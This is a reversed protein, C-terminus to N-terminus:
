LFNTKNEESIIEYHIDDDDLLENLSINEPYTNSIIDYSTYILIYIIIGKEFIKIRNLDEMLLVKMIDNNNNLEEKFGDKKSKILYKNKNLMVIKKYPFFYFESPEKVFLEYLENEENYELKSKNRNLRINNIYNIIDIQEETFLIKMKQINKVMFKKKKENSMKHFNSSLEFRKVNINNIKLLINKVITRTKFYVKIYYNYIRILVTAYYLINCFAIFSILLYEEFKKKGKSFFSIYLLPTSFFCFFFIIMLIFNSIKKLVVYRPLINNRYYNFCFYIILTSIYSFAKSSTFFKLILYILFFFFPFIINVYDQEYLGENHFIPKYKKTLYTYTVRKNYNTLNINLINQYKKNYKILKLIYNYELYSLIIKICYNSKINIIEDKKTKKLVKM